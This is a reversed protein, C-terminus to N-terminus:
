FYFCIFYFGNSFGCIEM